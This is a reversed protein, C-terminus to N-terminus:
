NTWTWRAIVVRDILGSDKRIELVEFGNVSEAIRKVPGAQGYGIELALYGGDALFNGASAFIRRYFDLGDEGGYLATRPERLVEQQLEAFEAASVYPPNSVIIDFKGTIREFLDSKIFKISDIVGHRLANSRAVDLAADSIDSATMTCDGMMKTLSIAICGSGTCLDLIRRGAGLGSVAEVLLETEPRPILVREDVLMDLGCFESTGM